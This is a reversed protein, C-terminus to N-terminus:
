QGPAGIISAASPPGPPSSPYVISAQTPLALASGANKVADLIHLLLEQRISMFEDGEETLVYAFIEVDLSYAGVGIFRVPLNGTEIKPHSKLLGDIAALIARVQEATTDRRLNLKLHFLMKDQRSFNELTVTSFQANPVTLLTRDLTRIRTSRLGIDEVTGVSDGFKCYDGVFVPHDTIVSLGGFVNEVTKQAALAIAIGGIGLGALVTKTDYGWSALIATVAFVFVTVKALRAMLPVVSHTLTRRRSALAARVPVMGLDVLRLCFWAAAFISLLSLTRGLYFRVIASCGIAEMAGRFLAAALLLQLPAVLAEVSGWSFRPAARTLAPHLLTLVVRSLLRGLFALALASVFLGIWQWLATDLFGIRVLPPPIYRELPSAATQQALVPIMDITEPAFRWVWIGSRLQAREIQLDFTKDDAHMTLVRDRDRPLGDAKDGEPDSSLAAVDFQPDSDLAQGLEEALRPGNKRRDEPSFKRLNLYRSAAIYNKARCAQLFGLVSSEPSVRNYPDEASAAPKSATAPAAGPIQGYAPWTTLGGIILCLAFALRAASHRFFSGERFFRWRLFRRRSGWKMDIDFTM